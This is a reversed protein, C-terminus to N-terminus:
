FPTTTGARAAYEWEAETLLRYPGEGANSKGPKRGSVKNNLWAIYAHVDNWSVCVVPDHPTQRFNPHRWDKGPSRQMDKGNYVKCDGTIAHATERVYTAYEKKTVDYRGAAFARVEVSHVPAESEFRGEETPPSGMMFTGSPISVM